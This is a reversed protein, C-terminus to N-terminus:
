GRHACPRGTFWGRRFRCCSRQEAEGQAKQRGRAERTAAAIAQQEDAIRKREREIALSADRKAQEQAAIRDREAKEAAAIRDREAKLAFEKALERDRAAKQEAAIRDSEAKAARAEAEDKERQIKLRAQEAKENEAKVRAAEADAKRKAEAEAAIRAKEAAEARIRDEHERQKREEEEKRLRALEAQEADHSQRKVIAATITAIVAETAIKARASFEQWDPKDRQIETLRDQMAEIPLSQWNEATFRGSNEIEALNAEHTAIRSKEKDEWETLPQRVEKQLAELRDWARAREVDVRKASEKWGKVLQKGMEDLGNKSKAVKHALSAIDKRGKPTSIDLVTARVEKEILDIIPDLGNDKFVTAPTLRTVLALANGSTKMEEIVIAEDGSEVLRDAEIEDMTEEHSHALKSM